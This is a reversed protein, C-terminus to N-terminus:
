GKKIPHCTPVTGSWRGGDLCQLVTRGQIKYGDKCGFVITESIEYYFKVNSITVGKSTGPYPCLPVESIFTPISSIQQFPKILYTEFFKKFLTYFIFFLLVGKLLIVRKDKTQFVRPLM